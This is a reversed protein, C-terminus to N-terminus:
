KATNTIRWSVLSLSLYIETCQEDYNVRKSQNSHTSVSDKAKMELLDDYHPDDAFSLVSSGTVTPRRFNSVDFISSRRPGAAMAPPLEAMKCCVSSRSEGM